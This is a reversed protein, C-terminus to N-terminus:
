CIASKFYGGVIHGCEKTLEDKGTKFYKTEKKEM